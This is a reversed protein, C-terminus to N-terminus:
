HSAASRSPTLLPNNCPKIFFSAVMRAAAADDTLPTFRFLDPFSSSTSFARKSQNLNVRWLFAGTLPGMRISFAFLIASAAPCESRLAVSPHNLRHFFLNETSNTM